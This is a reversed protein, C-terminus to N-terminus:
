WALGEKLAGCSLAACIEEDKESVEANRQIKRKAPWIERGESKELEFHKTIVDRVTSQFFLPAKEYKPHLQGSIFVNRDLNKQANNCLVKDEKMVREYMDSILRFDNEASNRNRYIEYAMKSSTPGTPLFKQIMIFHPSVVMASVPFYYTSATYLGKEMQEATSECHHQIHGDKLDSDFSELNLFQPIDAHTTPCHYCENFNDALIKWNYHGDLEYSHDLDYDDFNYVKYREQKDVNAFHEEWPVEPVENADLNVWIFGNVDVKVHIRFLGNQEKDFGDLDQYGPAKALKGNLGYSWGHYRCSLIKNNGSGEKEIVPYARHRCVNHFANVNDQRDRAVIFDFGAIEYRLWDGSEKIRSSHTLFIWRKSFIARRELEYMDPSTYWSAPLARVPADKVQEKGSPANNGFGFYHLVSAAM